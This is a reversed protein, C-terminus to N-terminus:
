CFQLQFWNKHFYISIFNHMNCQGIIIYLEKEEIKSKKDYCVNNIYIGLIWVVCMTCMFTQLILYARIKNDRIKGKMTIHFGLLLDQLFFFFSDLFKM